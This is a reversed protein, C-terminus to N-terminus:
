KHVTFSNASLSRAMNQVAKSLSFSNSRATPLLLGSGVYAKTWWDNCRQQAKSQKSVFQFSKV